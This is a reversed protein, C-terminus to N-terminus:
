SKVFQIQPEKLEKNIIANKSSINRGQHKNLVLVSQIQENLEVYLMSFNNSNKPIIITGRILIKKPFYSM